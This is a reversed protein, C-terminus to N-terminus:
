SALIEIQKKSILEGIIPIVIFLSVIYLYSYPIQIFLYFIMLFFKLGFILFLKINKIRSRNIIYIVFISFGTIISIILHSIRLTNHKSILEGQIFDHYFIAAGFGQSLTYPKEGPRQWEHVRWENLSAKGYYKLGEVFFNLDHAIFPIYIIM